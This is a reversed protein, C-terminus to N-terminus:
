SSPMRSPQYHSSNLRTSKRDQLDEVLNWLRHLVEDLGASLPRGGRALHDLAGLDHERTQGGRRVDLREVEVRAAEHLAGLGPGDQDVQAAHQGGRRALDLRAGAVAAHVEQ